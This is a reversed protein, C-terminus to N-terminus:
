SLARNEFLVKISQGFFDTADWNIGHFSVLKEIVEDLCSSKMATHLPTSGTRADVVMLHEVACRPSELLQLAYQAIGRKVAIHLASDGFEDTAFLDFPGFDLLFMFFVSFRSEFCVFRFLEALDLDPSARLIQHFVEFNGTEVAVYILHRPVRGTSRNLNIQPHKLVIELNQQLRNPCHEANVESHYIQIGLLLISVACEGNQFTSNIDILNSLALIKELQSPKGKSLINFFAEAWNLQAM